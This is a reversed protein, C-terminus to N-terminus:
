SPMLKVIDGFISVLYLEGAADQGFSVLGTFDLEHEVVGDAGLFWMRGTLDGFVYAGRLAPMASGRYVYGGVAAIGKDRGWEFVPPVADAPADARRQTSGEWRNWGFDMGARGAPIRDIEEITENGVDGLWIDGTPVDLSLRWPNRLGWAYIEPRIGEQGVFPNDAPVDYGPGDLRPVIRVIKGLLKTHDRADEGNSGGGDGFGIYLDGAPGFVLGGGNHGPGPQHETLVLRESAPVAVGDAVEWSAIVSDGNLDTFDLYM